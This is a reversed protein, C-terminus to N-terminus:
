KVVLVGGRYMECPMMGSCKRFSILFYNACKTIIKEAQRLLIKKIEIKM